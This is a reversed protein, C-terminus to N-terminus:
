MLVRNEEKGHLQPVILVSALIYHCYKGHMLNECGGCCKGAEKLLATYSTRALSTQASTVYNKQYFSLLRGRAERASEEEPM